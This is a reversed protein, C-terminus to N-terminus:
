DKKAEKDDESEVSRHASEEVQLASEEAHQASEKAQQISEEVQQVSEEVQLASEEAQQASEKAQLASEEVLQASEKAQIASEVVLLASEEVLQASEEVLQASEEVQLASEEAQQASEKAQQVSEEVQQVSEEVQQASEKAQLISAVVQQASEVVQHASEEVQLASEEAQLASEKAQLVSEVVLQASEVVQQASEKAQLISAVVQQASEKAQIASVEARMASETAYNEMIPRYTPLQWNLYVASMRFVFIIFISAYYTVVYPADLWFLFFYSICGMGAATAYLEGSRFVYPVSGTIIDRMAGGAVGTCIGLCCSVLTSCGAMHAKSTGMITFFALAFTDSVRLTGVPMSFFRVIYFIIVGTVFTLVLYYEGGTVVWFVRIIENNQLTFGAMLLDRLTGGGLAAVSACIIIGFVDINVRSSATAGGIAAIIISICSLAGFSWHEQWSIDFTQHFTEAITYVNNLM